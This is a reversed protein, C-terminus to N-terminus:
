KRRRNVANNKLPFTFYVHQFFFSFLLFFSFFSSLFLFRRGGRRHRKGRGNRAAVVVGIDMRPRSDIARDYSGRSEILRFFSSNCVRSLVCARSLPVNLLALLPCTARAGREERPAVRLYWRASARPVLSPGKRSYRPRRAISPGGARLLAALPGRAAPPTPARV